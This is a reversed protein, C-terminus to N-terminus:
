RGRYEPVRLGRCTSAHVGSGNRENCHGRRHDSAPVIERSCRSIIAAAAFLAAPTFSAGLLAPSVRRPPRGGTRPHALM